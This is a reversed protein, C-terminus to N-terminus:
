DSGNLEQIRKQVATAWGRHERFKARAEDESYRDNGGREVIALFKKAEILNHRVSREM